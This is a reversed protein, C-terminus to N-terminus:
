LKWIEISIQSKKIKGFREMLTQRRGKERENGKRAKAKSEGDL